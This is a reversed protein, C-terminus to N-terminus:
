LERLLRAPAVTTARLLTIAGLAGTLVISAAVVSLLTGPEATFEVETLMRSVLWGLGLGVVVAPIAALLGLVLYQVLATSLITPRAKGLM